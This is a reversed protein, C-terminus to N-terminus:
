CQNLQPHSPYLHFRRWYHFRREPQRYRSRHSTNLIKTKCVNAGSHRLGCTQNFSFQGLRVSLSYFCLHQFIKKKDKKKCKPLLNRPHVFVYNTRCQLSGAPIIKLVTRLSQRVGFVSNNIKKSLCHETMHYLLEGRKLPGLPAHGHQRFDPV